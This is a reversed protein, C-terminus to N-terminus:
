AVCNKFTVYNIVSEGVFSTKQQLSEAKRYSYVGVFASQVPVYQATTQFVTTDILKVQLAKEIRCISEITFNEKGKLIKSVHQPSFDLLAALDKQSMNKSRLYGLIKIAIDQSVRLWYENKQRWEAANIWSDDNKSERVLRESIKDINM